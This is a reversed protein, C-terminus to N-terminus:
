LKVQERASNTGIVRRTSRANEVGRYKHSRCSAKKKNLMILSDHICQYNHICPFPVSVSCFCIVSNEFVLALIDHPRQLSLEITDLDKNRILAPPLSKEAKLSIPM